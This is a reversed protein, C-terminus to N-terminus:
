HLSYILGFTYRDTENELGAIDGGLELLQAGGSGKYGGGIVSATTSGRMEEYALKEYGAKVAISDTVQYSAGVTFEYMTGGSVNDEYLVGTQHHQDTGKAVAWLSGKASANFALRDFEAMLTMGVYPTWISQEYSIGVEGSPFNGVDDRFGNESYVFSGGNAQFAWQDWRMGAMTGIAFNPHRFLALRASGDVFNAADIETDPHISRDSWDNVPLLWDYDVMDSSGSLKTGGGIKFGLWPSIQVAIDANLMAVDNIQWDLQSYKQDGTFVSEQGSGSVQSISAGLKVTPDFNQDWFIGEGAGADDPLGDGAWAPSGIFIAAACVAALRLQFLSRAFM